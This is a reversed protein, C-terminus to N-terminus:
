PFFVVKCVADRRNVMIDLGKEFEELKMRHTILPATSIKGAELIEIVEGWLGPSGLVGLFTVDSTIFPDWNMEVRKAGLFGLLAIRGYPRIIEEMDVYASPHGTTEIIIHLMEGDTLERIEEVLNQRKVNVVADVGMRLGVDLREERTGTLIVRRAGYVKKAIQAAQLGIPGPGLVAVNDFPTVNARKIGHLAIGTPEILAAEEFPLSDFKHLHSAPFVIHEAFAGDRNMVGTETRNICQNYQGRICYECNRCAVTCEGSVRDGTKFDSVQSGLEIIEGAWEHGPIMPLKTRGDQIFLMENTYLEYDTGCLGVARVRILAEDEALEKVPVDEIRVDNPGHIRIAKV